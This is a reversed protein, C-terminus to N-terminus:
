QVELALDENFARLSLWCVYIQDIKMMLHKLLVKKDERRVQQVLMINAYFWMVNSYKTNETIMGKFLGVSLGHYEM